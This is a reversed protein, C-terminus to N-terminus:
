SVRRIRHNMTDAILIDGTAPDWAVGRPGNLMAKNAPGGDGSFGSAGTGAFTYIRRATDIRYIKKHSEDAVYVNGAADAAVDRALGFGSALTTITGATDVRRIRDNVQDVIYLSGDPGFVVNRPEYLRAATAPGGDGSLGATGTGAVTRIIGAADVKRVRHNNNDAIYLLGDPGIEVGKPYNLRASTAPIGDGNYGRNGNGAVTTIRGTTDVKRIRQNPPDAIYVNGAADVAIGHPTNLRASTAPGGDGSFGATGTGAITTIRGSTDIRRARHNDTDIVYVNGAGDAATTRPARLRAATAPGGDGSFGSTGTGAITTIIGTAPPPPPPPPPPTTGVTVVLQPPTSGAERTALDTGDSSDAVLNFSYTGNGTVAATVDWEVWSGSSVAGLDALLGSTRAPKTNWTLTSESWATGSAYVEPGNGSSNTVFARLRASSVTGEVG